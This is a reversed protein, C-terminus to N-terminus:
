QRVDSKMKCKVQTHEHKVFFLWCKVRYFDLKPKSVKRNHKSIVLNQNQHNTVKTNLHSLSVDGYM